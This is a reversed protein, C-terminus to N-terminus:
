TGIDYLAVKTTASTPVESTFMGNTVTYWKTGDSWFFTNMGMKAGSAGNHPFSLASASADAYVVLQDSTPPVVKVVKSATLGSGNSVSFFLGAAATPLNIQADSSLSKCVIFAGSHSASLTMSCGAIDAATTSVSWTSGSTFALVNVKFFELTGAAGVQFISKPDDSSGPVMGALPQGPFQRCNIFDATAGSSATLTIVDKASASSQQVTFGGNLAAAMGEYSKTGYAM